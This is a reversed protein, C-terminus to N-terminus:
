FLDLLLDSTPDQPLPSQPVTWDIHANFDGLIYANHYTSRLAAIREVSCRLLSYSEVRLAPPCYISAVLYSRKKVTIEIFLAELDGRELEEVRRCQLSNPVAVM